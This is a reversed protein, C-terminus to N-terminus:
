KSGQTTVVASLPRPLTLFGQDTDAAIAKYLESVQAQEAPTTLPAWTWGTAGQQAVAVRGDATRAYAIVLGLRAVDAMVEAEGLRVVQPHVGSTRALAVESDVWTWLKGLADASSVSGADLERRLAELEAVREDVRFPLGRRVGDALASLAPGLATTLHGRRSDAARRREEAKAVREGLQQARLEERQLELELASRQAVLGRLQARRAERQDELRADLGELEGRLRALQEALGALEPEAAEAPRPTSAAPLAALVVGLLLGRASRTTTKM